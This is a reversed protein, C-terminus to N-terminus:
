LLGKQKLYAIHEDASHPHHPSSLSAWIPGWGVAPEGHWPKFVTARLRGMEHNTIRGASVLRAGCRRSKFRNGM